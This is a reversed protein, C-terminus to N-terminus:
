TVKFRAGTTDIRVSDPAHYDKTFKINQHMGIFINQKINSIQKYTGYKFLGTNM